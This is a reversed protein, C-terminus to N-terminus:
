SLVVETSKTAANALFLAARAHFEEAEIDDVYRWVHASYMGLACSMPYLDHGGSQVAQDATQELCELERATLGGYPYVVAGDACLRVQGFVRVPRGLKDTTFAVPSRASLVLYRGTRYMTRPNEASATYNEHVCQPPCVPMPSTFAFPTM